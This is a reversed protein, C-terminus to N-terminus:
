NFTLVGESQLVRGQVWEWCGTFSGAPAPPSYASGVQVTATVVGPGHPGNVGWKERGCM